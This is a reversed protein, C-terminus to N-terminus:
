IQPGPAGLAALRAEVSSHNGWVVDAFEGAEVRQHIAQWYLGVGRENVSFGYTRCAIPRHQYILCAGDALDLFACTYPAASGSASAMRRNVEARTEAPLLALGTKVEQWEVESLAPPQALSRCCQDCGKRCPWDPHQATIAKARAEAANRLDVLIEFM